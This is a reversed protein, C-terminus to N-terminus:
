GKFVTGAKPTRQPDATFAAVLAFLAGDLVASAHAQDNVKLTVVCSGHVPMYRLELVGDAMRIDDDIQVAIDQVPIELLADPPTPPDAM